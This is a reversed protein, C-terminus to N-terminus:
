PPPSSWCKSTPDCIGQRRAGAGDERPAAADAPGEAGQLGRGRHRGEGLTEEFADGPTALVMTAVVSKGEPCCSPDINSYITAMAESQKSYDGDRAVEEFSPPPQQGPWSRSIECETRGLARLDLDLGAFLIAASIGPRRRNISKVYDEPLSGRPCLQNVLATMDGAHIVCRARASISPGARRRSVIGSARGGSFTIEGVGQEMRLTGGREVFLDALVQSM